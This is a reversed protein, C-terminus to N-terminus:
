LNCTQVYQKVQHLLQMHVDLHACQIVNVRVLKVGRSCLRIWKSVDRDVEEIRGHSKGDFEFAIVTGGGLVVVLDVSHSHGSAFRGHSDRKGVQIRYEPLFCSRADIEHLCQVFRRRMHDHVTDVRDAGHLPCPRPAGHKWKTDFCCVGRSCGVKNHPGLFPRVQVRKPVLGYLCSSLWEVQREAKMAPTLM